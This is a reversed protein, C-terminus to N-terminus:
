CANRSSVVESVAKVCVRLMINTQLEILNDISLMLKANLKVVPGCTGLLKYM